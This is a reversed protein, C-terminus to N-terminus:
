SLCRGSLRFPPDPLSALGCRCVPSGRVDLRYRVESGGPRGQDTRTCWEDRRFAAAPVNTKAVRELVDVPTRQRLLAELLMIFIQNMTSDGVLAVTKGRLAYLFQPLLTAGHGDCARFQQREAARSREAPGTCCEHKLSKPRPGAWHFYISAPCSTNATLPPGVAANVFAGPDVCLGM